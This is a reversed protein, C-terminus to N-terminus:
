GFAFSLNTLNSETIKLIILISIFKNMMSSPRYIKVKRKRPKTVFNISKLFCSFWPFLSLFPSSFYSLESPVRPRHRSIAPAVRGFRETPEHKIFPALRWFGRARFARFAVNVAARHVGAVSENM